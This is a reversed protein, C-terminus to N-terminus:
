LSGVKTRVSEDLHSQDFEGTKFVVEHPYKKRIEIREELDASYLEGEVKDTFEIGDLHDLEHCCCIAEFDEVHKQHYHGDMDQYSFDIWYPRAVRGVFDGVSMCGECFYQKGGMATIVPNFYPTVTYNKRNNLEEKTMEEVTLLVIFRKTIGFQPAAAAYGGNELSLKVIKDIIEEYYAKNEFDKVETAIEKLRQDEKPILCIDM